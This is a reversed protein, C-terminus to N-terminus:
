QSVEKSIFLCLINSSLLAQIVSNFSFVSIDQVVSACVSVNELFVGAAIIENCGM